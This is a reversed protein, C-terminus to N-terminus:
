NGLVTRLKGTCGDRVLVLGCGAVQGACELPFHRNGDDDEWAEVISHISILLQAGCRSCEVNQQESSNLM